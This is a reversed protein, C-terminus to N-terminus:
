KLVHVVKRLIQSHVVIEKGKKAAMYWYRNLLQELGRLVTFTLHIILSTFSRKGEYNTLFSRSSDLTASELSSMNKEAEDGGATEALGRKLNKIVDKIKGPISM